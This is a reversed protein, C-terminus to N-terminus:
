ANKKAKQAQSRLLPILKLSFDLFVIKNSANRELHYHAQNIEHYIRLVNEDSIFRSFKSSFAFEKEALYVLKDKQNPLQNLMFNERILAAAYRLFSKQKERDNKAMQDVWDIIELVKRGYSLRMLQSFQNFFDENEQSRNLLEIASIINGGALRVINSVQMENLVLETQSKLYAKMSDDDIRNVKLMQTRSLITPLIEGPQESILLFITKPPPEEIIKLLKNAGTRNQKEPLWIIMIKYESEYTKLNLKRIIQESELTYISGQLNGTGIHSLWQNLTFFPSKLVMKRWENIFNDSVPKSFKSTRTVPFVFHLDPHILKQYKKCSSCQGCADEQQRNKCSIYQAYALALALKGSGPAGTILQAHSIRKNKVSQKFRDIIDTHGIVQSFLM